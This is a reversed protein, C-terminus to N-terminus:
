GNAQSGGAGTKARRRPRCASGSAPAQATGDSYESAVGPPDGAGAQRVFKAPTGAEKEGDGERDILPAAQSSPLTADLLRRLGRLASLDIRPSERPTMGVATPQTMWVPLQFPSADPRELVFYIEDGFRNWGIV